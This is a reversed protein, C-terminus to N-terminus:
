SNSMTERGCLRAASVAFSCPQNGSWMRACVVARGVVVITRASVTRYGAAARAGMTLPQSGSCSRHWCARFLPSLECWPTRAVGARRLASRATM